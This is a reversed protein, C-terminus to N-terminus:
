LTATPRDNRKRLYYNASKDFKQITWDECDVDYTIIYIAIRNKLMYCDALEFFKTEM